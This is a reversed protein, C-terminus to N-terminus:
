FWPHPWRDRPIHMWECCLVVLLLILHHMAMDEVKDLGDLHAEFCTPWSARAQAGRPCFYELAAIKDDDEDDRGLNLDESIQTTHVLGHKEFGELSM